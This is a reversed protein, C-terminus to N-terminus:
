QLLTLLIQQLLFLLLQLFLLTLLAFLFLTLTCGDYCCRGGELCFPESGLLFLPLALALRVIAPLLRNDDCCLELRLLLLQLTLSRLLSLLRLLRTSARSIILLTLATPM